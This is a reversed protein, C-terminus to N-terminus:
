WGTKVRVTELGTLQQFEIAPDQIDTSPIKNSQINLWEYGSQDTAWTLAGSLEHDKNKFPSGFAMQTETQISQNLSNGEEAKNIQWDLWDAGIANIRYFQKEKTGAYQFSITERLTIWDNVRYQLM